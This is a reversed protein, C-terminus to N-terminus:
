PHRQGPPPLANGSALRSLLSDRRRKAEAVDRTNLSARQRQKRFDPLHLTFHCWWTGNNNWLHHHENGERCRVSLKPQENM